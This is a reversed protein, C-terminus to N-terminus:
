RACEDHMPKTYKTPCAERLTNMTVNSCQADQFLYVIAANSGDTQHWETGSAAGHFPEPTPMARGSMSGQQRQLRRQATRRAPQPLHLREQAHALSIRPWQVEVLRPARVGGPLADVEAQAGPEVGLCNLHASQSSHNQTRQVLSGTGKRRM